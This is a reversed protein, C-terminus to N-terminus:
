AAARALLLPILLDVHTPEGDLGDRSPHPDHLLRWGEARIEGVVAHNWDGRPSKGGLIVQAGVGFYQHVWPAYEYCILSFGRATLWKLMAANRENDDRHIQVFHPVDVLDLDLLTALCAAFCNGIQDIPGDPGGFLTQLVPKM